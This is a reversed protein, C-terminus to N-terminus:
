ELELIVNEKDYYLVNDKIELLEYPEDGNILITKEDTLVNYLYIGENSIGYIFNENDVFFGNTINERLEKNYNNDTKSIFLVKNIDGNSNKSFAYMYINSEVYSKNSFEFMYEASNKISFDKSLRELEKQFILNNEIDSLVKAEKVWNISVDTFNYNEFFIISNKTNNGYEIQIGRTPYSIKVYDNSYTYEEYDPWLYTLENMFEKLNIESNIFKTALEEFKTMDEVKNFYISIENGNMDNKSFFVYIDNSKYGISEQNKNGYNPEGLKEIISDFTNSVKIGNIVNNQYKSNYVINYINNQITRVSIGEDYFMKYNNFDAEKSGFIDESYKWNSDISFKLEDSQPRIDKLENEQKNELSNINDHKLYYNEENNILIKITENNECTVKIEINKSEDILIYNKSYKFFYSIRNIIALFYKEESKTNEYLDYKFETLIKIDYGLIDSVDESIYKAESYELIEKISKFDAIGKIDYLNNSVNESNNIEKKSVSSIVGLLSFIICLILVIIVLIVIKKKNMKKKM